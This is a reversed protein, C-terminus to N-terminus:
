WQFDGTFVVSEDDPNPKAQLKGLEMVPQIIEKFHELVKTENEPHVILIMGVGNNFTKLMDADSLDGQKKLLKFVDPINIQDAKIEAQLNDAFSRPLNGVIGGGTINSIGTLLHQDLLEKLMPYYLTTPTLLTKQLESPLKAFDAKTKIGLVSRVLSYGNSHIGSSPLGILIDGARTHSKANLLDDKEVIGVGFAALDYHHPQYLGPLEATEGGILSAGVEKTAKAVGTVIEAVVDPRLKDVALYDQLFLPKAGEAVIDNMVMAVLDQGITTNNEAAVALLLKTGVGDSGSVLVPHQYGTPIEMLSGFGSLSGLVNPTYTDKVVQSIKHVAENGAAIDVGAQAYADKTM